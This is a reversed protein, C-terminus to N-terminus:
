IVLFMLINIEGSSLDIYIHEFVLGIELAFEKRSHNFWTCSLFFCNRLVTSVVSGKMGTYGTASPYTLLKTKALSPHQTTNDCTKGELNFWHAEAQFWLQWLCKVPITPGCCYCDAHWRCLFSKGLFSLAPFVKVKWKSKSVCYKQFLWFIIGFHQEAVKPQSRHNHWPRLYSTHSCWTM